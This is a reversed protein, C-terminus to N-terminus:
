KFLNRWQGELAEGVVYLENQDIDYHRRLAAFAVERNDPRRQFRQDSLLVARAENVPIETLLRENRGRVVLDNQGPAHLIWLELNESDLFEDARTLDNSKILTDLIPKLKGQSVKGGGSPQSAQQLLRQIRAGTTPGESAVISLVAAEYDERSDKTLAPLIGSKWRESVSVVGSSSRAESLLSLISEPFTKLGTVAATRTNEDADVKLNWLLKAAWLEHIESLKIAALWRNTPVIDQSQGELEQRNLESQFFSNRTEM